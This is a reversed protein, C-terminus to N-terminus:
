WQRCYVHVDGGNLKMMYCDLDALDIDGDGDNDVGDACAAVTSERSNFDAGDVYGDYDNDSGDQWAALGSEASHNSCITEAPLAQYLKLYEQHYAQGV